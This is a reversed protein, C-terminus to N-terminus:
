ADAWKSYHDIVVLVYKFGTTTLSLTEFDVQVLDNFHHSVISHLEQRRRPNHLKFRQCAICTKVYTEVTEAMGPWYFKRAVRTWTTKNARHGMMDHAHHLIETHYEKPAVLLIHGESSTRILVGKRVSLAKRHKSFWTKQAANLDTLRLKYIKPDDSKTALADLYASICKDDKQAKRLNAMGYRPEAMLLKVEEIQCLRTPIELETPALHDFADEWEPPLPIEWGTGGPRGYDNDAIMSLESDDTDLDSLNNMPPHDEPILYYSDPTILFEPDPEPESFSHPDQTYEMNPGPDSIPPTPLISGVQVNQTQPPILQITETATPCDFAPNEGQDPTVSIVTQTDTTKMVKHIVYPQWTEGAEQDLLWDIMEIPLAEQELDKADPKAKRCMKQHEPNTTKKDFVPLAKWQKTPMFPVDPLPAESVADNFTDRYYQTRKSLGDANTHKTRPRHDIVFHFESLQQMWRVM